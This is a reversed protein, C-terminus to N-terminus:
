PQDTGVHSERESTHAISTTLLTKIRELLQSRYHQVMAPNAMIMDLQRTHITLFGLIKLKAAMTEADHQELRARLADKTVETHFGYDELIEKVFLVRKLRRNFDAAGGKFQFSIYNELSRQGVLAETIAFHFGLRSQLSCYNSSIMFYNRNAMSTRVTPLLAQNQTAQFMVSMFGKSDVPPPGDWPFATIGEWLALMPLSVINDIDVFHDVGVDTRFGDDLNLVWWQMPIEARLQKSSREPFRHAKGFRFMEHVSKEHSFRTIDHLTKCNKAKFVPSDPDLLTLPTILAAAQQLIAFVPTGTMLGRGDTKRNMALLPEIVGAYIRAGDADVTITEGAPLKEIAGAAGFLAPVKFERAVNALHGTLSGKESIVAAARPLLTAWRALARDTILVAGEPFRLADVDKLVRVAQGAAVGPSATTGGQYLAPPLGDIPQQSEGDPSPSMTQLPRCQLLVVEGAADIAWEIDQPQGAYAELRIGMAALALIQDDTLSPIAQDPGTEDMRCVGEGPYCVYKQEKRAITRSTVKLAPSRTVCFLDTATTGDVVAKPLGWASNITLSRDRIDMPNVSYLVGGSVADIMEMVGVCMETEEDALGRSFRYAMVAPSYAAAVVQKYTDLLQDRSVNLASHYLGAFSVGERDENLASSRVALHPPAACQRALETYGDMIASELDEPLPANEILGRIDASITYFRHHGHEEARQIRRQIETALDNHALFYRFARATIVFGDPVRIGLHNAADALGAMKMGSQDAQTKDLTAFPITLPGESDSGLHPNVLAELEVRIAQLRDSLPKYKGPALAHLHKVIQYVRTYAGMTRSRIFKMGFPTNGELAKELETMIELARNNANLLLKFQHYRAQFDIRLANAEAEDLPIKGSRFWNLVHQWRGM